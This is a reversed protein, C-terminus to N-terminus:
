KGSTDDFVAKRKQTAMKGLKSLVLDTYVFIATMLGSVKIRELSLGFSLEKVFNEYKGRVKLASKIRQLGPESVQGQISDLKTSILSGICVASTAPRRRFQTSLLLLGASIM